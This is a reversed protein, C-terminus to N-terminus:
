PGASRRPSVASSPERAGCSGAAPRASPRGSCSTASCMPPPASIGARSSGSLRMPTGIKRASAIYTEDFGAAFLKRWHEAQATRARNVSAEDAFAKMMEPWRRLHEYFAKLIEPLMQELEPRFARLAARASDDLRFFRVRDVATSHQAM